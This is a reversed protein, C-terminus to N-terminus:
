IIPATLNMSHMFIYISIVIILNGQEIQTFNTVFIGLFAV